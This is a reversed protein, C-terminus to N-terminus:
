QRDLASSRDATLLRKASTAANPVWRSTHLIVAGFLAMIWASQQHERLCNPWQKMYEWSDKRSLRNPRMEVGVVLDQDYYIPVTAQHLHYALDLDEHLGNKACTTHRVKHWDSRLFAMNSGWLPYYGTLLYNYHFTIANNIKQATRRLPVNYFYCSGTIAGCNSQYYEAIQEVWYPELITDADIRAIIDGHAADFGANRAFVRGQKSETIVRVFKYSSALKATRDSSNNDVVIVEDAPRSQLAISDLCARLRSEENYAPIVITITQKKMHHAIIM